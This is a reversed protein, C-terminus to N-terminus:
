DLCLVTADDRLEDHQHDRTTRIIHRVAEATSLAATALLAGQLRKEGYEEGVPDTAEVLGDSVLVLRDGPRLQAPCEVYQSGEFVGMPVNPPVDLATITGDRLLYPPPHGANVVEASGTALDIRMALATVFQEGGFQSHLV